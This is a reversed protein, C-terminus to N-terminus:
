LGNVKGSIAELTAVFSAFLEDIRARGLRLNGNRARLIDRFSGVDVSFERGVEDIVAEKKYSPPKGKLRVINRLIHLSSTLSKFLIEKLFAKNSTRLYAKKINLIRSKLEQECQFRLNRMDVDLDKFVDRGYLMIHNEKIDLFEIPFVDTSSKVYDETFFVPNICLFKGKRALRSAKKVSPMSTDKLVVALNINSSRPAHEGSAGSGYLAACVLSDGYIGKLGEVFSDVTKRLNGHNNM